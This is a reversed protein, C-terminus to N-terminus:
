KVSFVQMQEWNQGVNVDVKLPVSLKYASEMIPRVMQVLEEVEADRYSPIPQIRDVGVSTPSLPTTDTIPKIEDSITVREAYGRSIEIDDPVGRKVPNELVPDAM